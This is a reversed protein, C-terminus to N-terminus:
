SQIAVTSTNKADITTPHLLPLTPAERAPRRRSCSDVIFVFLANITAEM